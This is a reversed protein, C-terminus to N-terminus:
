ELWLGHLDHPPLAHHYVSRRLRIQIVSWIQHPFTDDPLLWLTSPRTCYTSGFALWSSTACNMHPVHSSKASTGEWTEFKHSISWTRKSIQYLGHVICLFPEHLGQWRLWPCQWCTMCEGAAQQEYQAVTKKKTQDTYGVLDPTSLHRRPPTM